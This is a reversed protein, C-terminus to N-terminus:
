ADNYQDTFNVAVNGGSNSASEQTAYVDAFSVQLVLDNADATTPDPDSPAPSDASATAAGVTAFGAAALVAAVRRSKMRHM